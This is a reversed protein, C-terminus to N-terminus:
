PRLILWGDEVRWSSLSSLFNMGLVNTDGIAPAVFATLDRRIIPGVKVEDLRVRAVQMPGNATQVVADYRLGDVDLGISRATGASLGIVSAGSDVLFTVTEGNVEARVWFHGDQRARLRLEGDAALGRAPDVEATLRGVIGSMEGRYSFLIFGVAFIALWALAMKAMSGLGTRRAALASGVLVLVGILYVLQLAQDGTVM